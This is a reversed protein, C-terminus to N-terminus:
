KQAEAAPAPAIKGIAVKVRGDGPDPYSVYLTDDPGITADVNGYQGLGGSAIAEVQWEKGDYYAHKVAGLDGFIIHPSGQRDLLITTSGQYFDYHPSIDTVKEVVWKGDKKYAYDLATDEFFSIHPSGEADLALSNDYGRTVSTKSRNGVGEIVWDKGNWEAFRIDGGTSWQSYTLHPMGKADIALSNWKGSIGGDISHVVWQGDVLEAHRVHTFQKGGPLFEHYWVLHPTGDASLALGCHYSIVGSDPDIEHAKWTGNDFTLYQLTGMSVCVHPRDSSDVAIHPYVNQSTHTSALIETTFWKDGHAPRFGYMLKADGTLYAVQLNASSDIAISTAIGPGVEQITWRETASIAALPLVAIAILVALSLAGKCSRDHIFMFYQM